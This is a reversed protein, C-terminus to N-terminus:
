GDGMPVVQVDIGKLALMDGGPTQYVKQLRRVDIFAQKQM